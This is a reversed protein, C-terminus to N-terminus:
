PAAGQRMEKLIYGAKLVAERCADESVTDPAALITATGDTASVTVVDLGDIRELEDRVHGECTECTMGQITLTLTAADAPAASGGGDGGGLALVGAAVGVVIVLAGLLIGAGGSRRPAESSRDDM